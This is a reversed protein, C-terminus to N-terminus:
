EFPINLKQHADKLLTPVALAQPCRLACAGCATCRDAGQGGALLSRQYYMQDVRSKGEALLYHNYTKFVQPIDVRQPCPMCYGCGSCGVQYVSRYAAKLQEFFERDADSLVDPASNSFVELNEQLQALTSAGSLVVTVEPKDYLWRLCWEVLSRKEPHAAVLEKVALPANAILVGGRLPEMVVMALGLAAGLALGQLGVQHDEDLINLQIQAMDWYYDEVIDKFAAFTNHISFGKCRIKGKQIMDDLFGFADFLKARTLNNTYLNHLLYVDLYDTKLRRLQRDLCAELDAPSKIQWLPSKSALVVKERYGEKLAKGLVAESSGYVYATDLYNIGHNIGHRVLAVAEAEDAPLRMCGLGLRSVMLGTDAFPRYEV